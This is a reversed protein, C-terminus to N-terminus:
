AGSAAMSRELLYFRTGDDERTLRYVWFTAGDFVALTPAHAPLFEGDRPGGGVVEVLPTRDQTMDGRYCMGAM